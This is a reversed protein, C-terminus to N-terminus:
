IFLNKPIRKWIGKGVIGIILGTMCGAILLPQFYYFIATNKLVMAAVCIQGINHFIGGIMSIGIISLWNKRKLVAMVAFSLTGGALSYLITAMGSFTFGSLLVRAIMIIFAPKKGLTYLALLTVLNALGLKIGPIPIPIPILSELYSFLFAAAVLMGYISIKKAM